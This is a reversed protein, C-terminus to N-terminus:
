RGFLRHKGEKVLSYLLAPLKGATKMRVISSTLLVYNTNFVARHSFPKYISYELGIATEDKVLRHPAASVLPQIAQTYALPGTLRLVGIGGTGHLWPRYTAINALVREIVAKLFPHGVVTIIHWQQYEGGAIHRVERSTGFGVHIEGHKNRWQSLIYADRPQVVQDLPLICTSKMDLYVGGRKYLLLYRFFDARAVSYDPNIREYYSLIADGYNKKIFAVADDDDYLTYSWDPNLRQLNEINALLEIPLPASKNKSLFIQHILRPISEGQKVPPLQCQDTTNSFLPLINSM